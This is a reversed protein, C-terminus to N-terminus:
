HSHNTNTYFLAFEKDGLSGHWAIGQQALNYGALIGECPVVVMDLRLFSLFLVSLAGTLLGCAAILVIAGAV